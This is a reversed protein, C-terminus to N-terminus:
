KAKEGCEKCLASLYGTLPLRRCLNVRCSTCLDKAPDKITGYKECYLRLHLQFGFLDFEDEGCFPCNIETTM